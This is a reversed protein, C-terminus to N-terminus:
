SVPEDKLRGEIYYVVWEAVNQAHDAIREVYKCVQLMEVLQPINENDLTMLRVLYSKIKLYMEDVKNDMAIIDAAKKEDREVYADLAGRLMKRAMRAIVIIDYPTPISSGLESMEVVRESIDSAHDAIRELDTILKLTSTVDRLDRAVPQQRAILEVCHRDISREMDDVIDDQDIVRRAKEVDLGALAAIAEEIAFEVQAGMRIIEEHLATMEREFGIRTVM